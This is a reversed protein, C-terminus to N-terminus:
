AKSLDPLASTILRSLNQAARGAVAIVEDMSTAAMCDPLNQNSLCSIGVVRLGMHNAALAELATSMGVADAGLLRFARTEARTEFQPGHTCLYVGKELRLGLALATRELCAGLASDYLSSVDPFRPGWAEVNPGTLASHGSFNIQDEILMLGGAPFRPNLSGAANTLILIEVGLLAMIRVGMVVEEPRRGEYLHCRGEQALVPLGALLGARFRGAHSAVTSPPFDPLRNYPIMNAETMSEALAGMGTGLVLGIKPSFGGPLLSKVAVACNQVKEQNQM